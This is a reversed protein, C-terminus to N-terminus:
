KKGLKKLLQKENLLAKWPLKGDKDDKGSTKRMDKEPQTKYFLLDELSLYVALDEIFLSLLPINLNGTSILFTSDPDPIFYHFNSIDLM